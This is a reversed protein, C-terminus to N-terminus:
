LRRSGNKKALRESYANWYANAYIKGNASAYAVAGWFDQTSIPHCGANQVMVPQGDPGTSQYPASGWAYGEACGDGNEARAESTGSVLTVAALILAIAFVHAMRSRERVWVQWAQAFGSAAVLNWKIKM